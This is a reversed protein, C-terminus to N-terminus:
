PLKSQGLLDHLRKKGAEVGPQDFANVGIMEALAVVSLEFLAFLEGLSRESLRDITITTSPRGIEYLSESTAQLQLQRLSHLSKGSLEALAPEVKSPLWYDKAVNNVGIFIISSLAEGQAYFQLQSHQDAPGRAQIPLLGKGDKGLSEAYLQRFWRAFEDLRWLYPMMVVLKLGQQYLLYQDSALGYALARSKQSSFFERAGEVLEDGKIDMCYAPLLGVASLVSFRGGMREPVPLFPINFKIAEDHLLGSSGDTVFVFHKQWDQHQAQYFARWMLYCAMIETTTGSKSVIAFITSQPDIKNLLATTQDPDTTDGHFIVQQLPTDPALANAIARGGLDSGGIGVVVLTKVWKLKTAFNAIEQLEGSSPLDSIFGYEGSAVREEVRGIAAHLHDQHAQRTALHIGLHDSGNASMKQNDIQLSKSM